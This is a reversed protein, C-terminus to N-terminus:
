DASFLGASTVDVKVTTVGPINEALSRIESIVAEAVSSDAAASISVVGDRAAVQATPYAKVLKARVRAALVKNDLVRQSEPTKKFHEL